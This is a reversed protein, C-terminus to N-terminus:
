TENTGGGKNNSADNNDVLSKLKKLIDNQIEERNDMVTVSVKEEMMGTMKALLKIAEMRDYTQIVPRGYDGPTISKIAQTKNDKIYINNGKEDKIDEGTLPNIAKTKKMEELDKLLVEQKIYKINGNEDLVNDKKIDVFDTVDSNIIALLKEIIDGKTMGSTELKENQIERIFEKANNSRLIINAEATTINALKAAALKNMNLSVYYQCFVVAEDTLKKGASKNDLEDRSIIDTRDAKMQQEYTM